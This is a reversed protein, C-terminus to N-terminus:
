KHIVERGRMRRALARYFRLDDRPQTSGLNRLETAEAGELGIAEYQNFLVIFRRRIDRRAKITSWKMYRRSIKEMVTTRAFKWLAGIRDQEFEWEFPRIRVYAEPRKQLKFIGQWEDRGNWPIKRWRGNIEELDDSWVGEYLREIASEEATEPYRKTFNVEKGRVTGSIFFMGLSDSGGATWKGDDTLTDVLVGMVGHTHGAITTGYHSFGYWQGLMGLTPLEADLEPPPAFDLLPGLDIEDDQILHAPVQFYDAGDEEHEEFGLDIDPDLHSDPM